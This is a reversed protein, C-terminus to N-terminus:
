ASRRQPSLWRSRFSRDRSSLAMVVALEDQSLGTQRAIEHAPVGSEALSLAVTRPDKRTPTKVSRPQTGGAAVRAVGQVVDRFGNWAGRPDLHRSVGRWVKSGLIWGGMILGLLSLAALPDRLLGSFAGKGASVVGGLFGRAKSEEGSARSTRVLLPSFALSDAIHIAAQLEPAMEPSETGLNSLGQALGAWSEPADPLRLAERILRAVEADAPGQDPSEQGLAGTGLLLSGLLLALSAAKM